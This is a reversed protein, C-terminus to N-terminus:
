QVDGGWFKDTGHDAYWKKEIERKNKQTKDWKGYATPFDPDTGSIAITPASILRKAIGDCTSCPIELVDPKQYAEFKLKCETCRWDYLTFKSM